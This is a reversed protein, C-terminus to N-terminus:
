QASSPTPFLTGNWKLEGSAGREMYRQTTPRMAQNRLRQRSPDIGSLERTNELARINILAEYEEFILKSVPDVFALQADNAMHFFIEDLGPLRLFVLPHGGRELARAYVERVLDAAPPSSLIAVRDGPQVDVSYEVLLRAMRAVRIDM